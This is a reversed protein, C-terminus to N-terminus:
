DLEGLSVSFRSWARGSDSAAISVGEDLARTLHNTKAKIRTGKRNKIMLM